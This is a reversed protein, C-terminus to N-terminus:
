TIFKTAKAQLKHRPGSPSGTSHLILADNIYGYVGPLSMDPALFLMFLIPSIPSGQPLGRPRGRSSLFSRVWETLHAPLGYGELRAILLGPARVPESFATAHRVLSVPFGGPLASRTPLSPGILYSGSVRTRPDGAFSGFVRLTPDEPM